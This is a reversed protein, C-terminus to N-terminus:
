VELANKSGPKSASCCVCQEAEKENPVMCTDCTWGGEAAATVPLKM